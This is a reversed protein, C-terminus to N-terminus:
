PKGVRGLKINQPLFVFCVIEHKKCRASYRQSQAKTM